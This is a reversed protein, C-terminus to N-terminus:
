SGRLKPATTVVHKAQATKGNHMPTDRTPRMTNGQAPFQISGDLCEEKHGPPKHIDSVQQWKEKNEEKHKQEPLKETVVM